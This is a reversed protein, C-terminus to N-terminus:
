FRDGELCYEVGRSFGINKAGESFSSTPAHIRDRHRDWFAIDDRGVPTVVRVKDDRGLAEQARASPDTSMRTLANM